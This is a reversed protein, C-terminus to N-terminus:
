KREAPVDLGQAGLGKHAGAISHRARWLLRAASGLYVLLLLGGALGVEQTELQPGAALVGGRWALLLLLGAASLAAHVWGLREFLVALGAADALRLVAAVVRLAQFPVLGIAITAAVIICIRSVVPARWVAAAFAVVVLGMVLRLYLRLRWAAHGTRRRVFPRPHPKSIARAGFLLPLGAVLAVAVSCCSLIQVPRSPETSVEFASLVLGLTVVVVSVFAGLAAFYLLEVGERVSRVYRELALASSRLSQAVPHACEPCQKSLVLGRLNYGCADCPQDVCVVGDADLADRNYADCNPDSRPGTV